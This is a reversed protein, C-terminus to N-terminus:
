FSAWSGADGEYHCGAAKLAEATEGTEDHWPLFIIDHDSDLFERQFDLGARELIVLVARM